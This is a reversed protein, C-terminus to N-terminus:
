QTIETANLQAALWDAMSTCGACACDIKVLMDDGMHTVDWGHATPFRVRWDNLYEPGHSMFGTADASAGWLAPVCPVAILRAM